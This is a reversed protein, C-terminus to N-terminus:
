GERPARGERGGALLGRSKEIVPVGQSKVFAITEPFEIGTDLFFAENVGAKRALTLVAMSDKGGSFSVNCVPRDHIHQRIMRIANRELNKLHYRNQQVVQEWDPNKGTRAEVPVLEKVRVQGDKVVGTGFRNKLKVIATGAPQSEKLRFKKGGM